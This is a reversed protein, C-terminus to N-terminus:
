VAPESRSSERACSSSNRVPNARSSYQNRLRPIRFSRLHTAYVQYFFVPLQDIHVLLGVVRFLNQLLKECLM